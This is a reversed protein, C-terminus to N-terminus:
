DERKWKYRLLGCDWIKEYGMEKAITNETKGNTEFGKKALTKKRFNFKHIREKPNTALVYRYDPNSKGDFKFGIQEYLNIGFSTWRRDAFTKVEDPRYVKVFYSFMKGGLGRCILDNRTAYRTLIWRKEGDKTFSMAGVIAGDYFSALYISSKVAGQIHNKDLFERIVDFDVEKVTCKRASIKKLNHSANLCYEIKKLVLDKKNLYEDEFIQILKIGQKECQETKDYHYWKGKGTAENHWYLGNYEFGIKLSPIFIDIEKGNGLISRDNCSVNEKGVITCIHEYIEKEPNSILNACRPCGHGELFDYPKISFIGHKPCNVEIKDQFTTFKITSLDYKDGHMLKARELFEAQGIRNKVGADRKGCKPCGQGRLHKTPTQKFEGHEPCIFIAPSNMKEFIFKSYDYKDGHIKRFEGIIGDRTLGRHKCKPCGQGRLHQSPTQWFEGHEPCIICVKKMVGCYEVKSYDYKDGHIKRAQTIFEELSGRNEKSRKENACVPCGRGRVHGSPTQYFEGHKPCIICVKTQSNKYEVKSYDYKDGHVLRSKEIFKDLASNKGSEIM